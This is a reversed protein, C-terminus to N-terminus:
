TIFYSRIPGHLYELRIPDLKKIPCARIYKQYFRVADLTIFFQSANTNPEGENYMGLIGKRDFKVSFGEDEFNRGYLSFGELDKGHIVDGGIV